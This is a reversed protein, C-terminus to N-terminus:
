LFSVRRTSRRVYANCIRDHLYVCVLGSKQVYDLNVDLRAGHSDLARAALQHFVEAMERNGERVRALVDDVDLQVMARALVDGRQARNATKDVVEDDADGLAKLVLHAVDVGMKGDVHVQLLVLLRAQPLNLDPSHVLWRCCPVILSM